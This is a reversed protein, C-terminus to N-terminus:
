VTYQPIATFLIPINPTLTLYIFASVSCPFQSVAKYLYISDSMSKTNLTCFLLINKRLLRKIKPANDQMQTFMTHRKQLKSWANEFYVM